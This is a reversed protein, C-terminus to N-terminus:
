RWPDVCSSCHCVDFTLPFMPGWLELRLFLSPFILFFL